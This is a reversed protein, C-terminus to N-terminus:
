ASVEKKGGKPQFENCLTALRNAFEAARKRAVATKMTPREIALLRDLYEKFVQADSLGAQREKELREREATDLAEQRTRADAIKATEDKVLKEFAKADRELLGEWRYSVSYLPHGFDFTERSIEYKFGIGQLVRAIDDKRIKLAAAKEKEEQLHENYAHCLRGVENSLEVVRDSFAKDEMELLEDFGVRLPENFGDEYVVHAGHPRLGAQALAHMRDKDRNERAVKRQREQEQQEQRKKTEQFEKISNKIIKVHETFGYHDLDYLKEESEVVRHTGDTWLLTGDEQSVLGLADLVMSRTEKNAKRAQQREEELQQQRQTEELQRKEEAGHLEASLSAVAQMLKDYKDGPMVRLTAVDITIRDGLSYYGDTLTMGLATLENLRLRLADEQRQEEERELRENEDDVAKWRAHLRTELPTARGVIQGEKGAIAKNITNQERRMSLAENEVKTRFAQVERWADKGAKYALKDAVPIPETLAVFKEELEALQQEAPSLRQLYLAIIEDATYIKLPAPTNDPTFPVEEHSVTVTNPPAAPTGKKKTSTAM